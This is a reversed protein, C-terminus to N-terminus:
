LTVVRGRTFRRFSKKRLDQWTFNNDLMVRPLSTMHKRHALFINGSRTTTATRFGQELVTLFEREGSDNRTGFPYGFHEVKKDIHSEIIKKSLSIEKELEERSLSSLPFHNVTHAGITALPEQSLEKVQEWSMSLDKVKSHWNIPYRNFLNKLRNLLDHSPLNLIKERINLFAANKEDSTKCVYVSDDSLHIVENEIILDELLYWWLIAEHNPFSTTIYIAFPVQHKKFIPYGHTYNDLYGDDLTILINNKGKKKNVLIEALDDLSIFRCGREKAEIIFKELNEPSIKMNENPALHGAEEEFVRHLMFITAIGNIPSLM